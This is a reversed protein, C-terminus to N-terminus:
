RDIDFEIEVIEGSEACQINEAGNRRAYDLIADRFSSALIRHVAARCEAAVQDLRARAQASLDVRRASAASALEARAAAAAEESLSEARAQEARLREERIRRRTLEALGADAQARAEQEARERTRGGYGDDYYRGAADTEITGRATGELVATARGAVEVEERLEAVIEIEGSEPRYVVYGGPVSHRHGDDVQTWDAAEEIAQEFTRRTAAGLTDGFPQVVRAEGVVTTGVTTTRQVVASWAEELERTVRVTISRPNCM